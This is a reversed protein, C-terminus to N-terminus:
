CQDRRRERRSPERDPQEPAPPEGALCRVESAVDRLSISGELSHSFAAALADRGRRSPRRRAMGLTGKFLVVISRFSLDVAGRSDEDGSEVDLDLSKIGGGFGFRDFTDHEVSVIFDSFVRSMAAIAGVGVMAVAFEGPLSRKSLPGLAPAPAEPEPPPSTTARASLGVM